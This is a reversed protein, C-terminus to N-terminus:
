SDMLSTTMCSQHDQIMQQFFLMKHLELKQELPIAHADVEAARLFIPAWIKWMPELLLQYADEAPDLEQACRALSESWASLREEMSSIEPLLQIAQHLVGAIDCMKPCDAMAEELRCTRISDPFSVGGETANIWRREPHAKSLAEMWRAAMWFDQQPGQDRAESGAYKQGDPVACDMGVWIIPDCGMWLAASLLFTGVTWGGEWLGDFGSLHAEFPFHHDPFLIREGQQFSGNERNMRRQFLLPTEWFLQQDFQESPTRPDLSAALHPACGWHQLIPVAQGGALILARDGYNRLLAGNRELSPGAGCLIAPMGKLADRLALGNKSSGRHALLNTFVTVGWDAADSLSLEAAARLEEVEDWFSAPPMFAVSTLAVRWAVQEAALRRQIPGELFYRQVRRDNMLLIADEIEPFGHWREEQEEVLLLRRTGGDLWGRLRLCEERSNPLGFLCLVDVEPFELTQM